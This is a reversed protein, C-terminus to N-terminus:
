HHKKKSFSKRKTSKGRDASKKPQRQAQRKEVKDRVPTDTYIRTKGRKRNCNKQHRKSFLCFIKLLYSILLRTLIQHLSLQKKSFILQSSSVVQLMTASVLIWLLVMPKNMAWNVKFLKFIQLVAPKNM